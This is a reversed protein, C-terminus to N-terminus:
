DYKKRYNQAKKLKVLIYYEWDSIHSDDDEPTNDIERLTPLGKLCETKIEAPLSFRVLRTRMYFKEMIGYINQIDDEYLYDNIDRDKFCVNWDNVALDVAEFFKNMTKINYESKKEHVM